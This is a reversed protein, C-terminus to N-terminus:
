SHSSSKIRRERARDLLTVIRTSREIDSLENIQINVQTQPQDNFLNHYKALIELAKQADYLEIEQWEEETGNEANLFVKKRNKIRKILHFNSKADPHSFDFYVKDEYFRVFPMWSARAQQELRTIIEQPTMLNEKIRKSIEERIKTNRLLNSGNVMATEYSAKPYTALYAQTANLCVAYAEIFVLHKLSMKKSISKGAM